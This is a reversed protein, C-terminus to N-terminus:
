RRSKLACSTSCKQGPPNSQRQVRFCGNRKAKIAAAWCCRAAKGNCNTAARMQLTLGSRQHDLPELNLAKVKFRDEAANQFKALATYERAAFSASETRFKRANAM